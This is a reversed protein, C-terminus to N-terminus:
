ITKLEFSLPFLFFVQYGPSVGRCSREPPLVCYMHEVMKIFFKAHLVYKTTNKRGEHELFEVEVERRNIAM